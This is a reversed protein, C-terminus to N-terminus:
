KERVNTGGGTESLETSTRLVGPWGQRLIKAGARGEVQFGEGWNLKEGKWAKGEFIM